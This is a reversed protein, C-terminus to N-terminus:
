HSQKQWYDSAPGTLKKVIVEVILPYSFMEEVEFHELEIGFADQLGFIIDVHKVSDWLPNNEVSTDEGIAAVDLSLERALVSKITQEIEATDM